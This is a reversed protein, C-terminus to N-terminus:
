GRRQDILKCSSRGQYMQWRTLVTVISCNNRATWHICDVRYRWGSSSKSQRNSIRRSGSRQRSCKGFRTSSTRVLAQLSRCAIRCAWCSCRTQWRVQLMRGLGNSERWRRRWCCWRCETRHRCSSGAALCPRGKATCLPCSRWILRQATCATCLPCM